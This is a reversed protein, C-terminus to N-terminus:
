RFCIAHFAMEVIKNSNNVNYTDDIVDFKNWLKRAYKLRMRIMCM